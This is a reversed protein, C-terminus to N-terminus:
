PYSLDDHLKGHCLLTCSGSFNGRDTYIPYLNGPKPLVVRTDFNILHTHSGTQGSPDFSSVNVGHSDHCESCPAGNALHGSHGGRSATTGNIKKKFSADSLISDRSHCRYCLAYNDYSEPTGDATECRERLIPAFSSGHPGKSGGADDSHCDTCYIMDQASLGPKLPSPISPVSVSRGMEEVPHFSPNSEDFAMRMNTSPLVRPVYAVDTAYDAHCKFCIEYEYTASPLEMGTRDVGSTGELMGSVFPARATRRNSAHPNHCDVCTVGGIMARSRENLGGLASNAIGPRERHSSIKQMQSKIDARALASSMVPFAQPAASAPALQKRVSKEGHTPVPPSPVPSHCTLCYDSSTYTLLPVAAAFHPTHCVECGQQLTAHGSVNWGTMSHCAVCLASYTNDMVLFNGYTDDHPDHCTNCHVESDTGGFDLNAPPPSVLEENPLSATYSFSVPHHNSLDLGFYSPSTSPIASYIGLNGGGVVAGLAITGDHCSLCLKTPGFPQPLPQPTTLTTSAYVAYNRAQLEKNWLPTSPVANHPTHCFICIRTETLSKISGPGSVSLNHVTNNIDGIAQVSAPSLFCCLGCLLLFFLLGNVRSCRRGSFKTNGM